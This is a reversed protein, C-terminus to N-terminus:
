KREDLGFVQKQGVGSTTKSIVKATLTKSAYPLPTLERRTGLGVLELKM